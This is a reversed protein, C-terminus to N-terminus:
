QFMFLLRFFVFVMFIYIAIIDRLLYIIKHLCLKMLQYAMMPNIKTGITTVYKGVKGNRKSSIEQKKLMSFFVIKTDWQLLLTAM